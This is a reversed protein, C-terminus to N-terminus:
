IIEKARGLAQLLGPSQRRGGHELAVQAQSGPILGQRGRQELAKAQDGTTKAELAQTDWMRVLLTRTHSLPTVRTDLLYIYHIRSGDKAKDQQAWPQAKSGDKAQVQHAWPQAASITGSQSKHDHGRAVM